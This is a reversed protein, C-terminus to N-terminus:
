NPNVTRDIRVVRPMEQIEIKETSPDIKGVASANLKIYPIQTLYSQLIESIYARVKSQIVKPNDERFTKEDVGLKLVVVTEM